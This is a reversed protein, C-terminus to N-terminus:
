KSERIGVEEPEFFDFGTVQSKPPICLRYYGLRLLVPSLLTLDANLPM